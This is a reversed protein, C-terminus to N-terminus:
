EYYLFDIPLESFISYGPFKFKWNLLLKAEDYDGDVFIKEYYSAECFLREESYAKM